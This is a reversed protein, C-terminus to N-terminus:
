EARRTELPPALYTCDLQLALLNKSQQTHPMVNTAHYVAICCFHPLQFTYIFIFTCMRACTCKRKVLSFFYRLAQSLSLYLFQNLFKRSSLPAPSFKNNPTAVCGLNAASKIKIECQFQNYNTNEPSASWRPTRDFPAVIISAARPTHWRLTLWVCFSIAVRRPLSPILDFTPKSRNSNDILPTKPQTAILTHVHFGASLSLSLVLQPSVFLGSNVLYLRRTIGLLHSILSGKTLNLSISFGGPIENNKM